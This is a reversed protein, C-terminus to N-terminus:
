PSNFFYRGRDHVREAPGPKMPPDTMLAKLLAQATPMSTATEMQNAIGTDASIGDNRIVIVRCQDITGLPGSLMRLRVAHRNDIEALIGGLTRAVTSAGPLTTPGGIDTATVLSRQATTV